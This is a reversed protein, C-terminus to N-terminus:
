FIASAVAENQELLGLTFATTTQWSVIKRLLCGSVEKINGPKINFLAALDRLQRQIGRSPRACIHSIEISRRTVARSMRM